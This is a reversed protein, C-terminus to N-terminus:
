ETYSSGSGHAAYLRAEAVSLPGPPEPVLLNRLRLKINLRQFNTLRKGCSVLSTGASRVAPGSLLHDRLPKKREQEVLDREPHRPSVGCVPGADAHGESLALRVPNARKGYLWLGCAGGSLILSSALQAQFHRMNLIEKKSIKLAQCDRKYLLWANVVALTITHWSSTCTGRRSKLPFKYKATFSDLLDVGGMYKSYTGVIYPREVEIYTKNAKDWRQIKQVPETGAFSSVLTVARNDYWKVASSNHKVEVRYDFTGRGKKKLSKDHGCFAFSLFPSYLPIIIIVIIIIHSHSRWPAAVCSTSTLLFFLWGSSSTGSSNRKAGALSLGKWSAVVVVVVVSGGAVAVVVVVSGGAVAVGASPCSSAVGWSGTRQSVSHLGLSCTKQNTQPQHHM